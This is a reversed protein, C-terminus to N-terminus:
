KKILVKKATGDNYLIINLGPEQSYIKQGISNYRIVEHKCEAESPIGKIGSSIDWKGYM